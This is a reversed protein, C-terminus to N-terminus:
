RGWEKKKHRNVQNISFVYYPWLLFGLTFLQLQYKTEGKKFHKYEELIDGKRFYLDQLQAYYEAGQPTLEYMSVMERLFQEHNGAQVVKSYINSMHILGYLLGILGYASVLSLWLM